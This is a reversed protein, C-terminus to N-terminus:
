RAFDARTYNWNETLPAPSTFKATLMMKNGEVTGAVEARVDRDEIIITIEKGKLTYKGIARDSKIPPTLSDRVSNWASQADAALEGNLAVTGDAFFRLFQFVTGRATAIERVFVGELANLPTPAPTSTRTATPALTATPPAPTNTPLVRTATATPPVPTASPPMPTLSPIATALPLPALTPTPTPAACADLALIAACIIVLWKLHKM